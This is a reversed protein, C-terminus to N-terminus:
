RLTGLMEVLKEAAAEGSGRAFHSIFSEYCGFDYSAKDPVYSWGANACSFVMTNEFPSNAKIYEGLSNFIEFPTTVFALEGIRIANLEMKETQPRSLRALIAGAHYVSTIEGGLEKALDNATPRDTEQWKRYVLRAKDALHEDDHNVPQEFELTAIRVCDAELKRFRGMVGLAYEAVKNGFPECGLGHKYKEILSEGSVNGSAGTFYAFLMGTEEEMRKRLPGIFDPSVEKNKSGDPMRCPHAQWNMILIDTKGERAIKVLRFRPDAESVHCVRPSRGPHGFNAGAYTGDALIYHRIFNIGETKGTATYLQASVRDALAAVAARVMADMYFVKYEGMAPETSTTDPASHSHTACIMIRNTPVGTAQSIKERAELVWPRHSRVLDQTYLLVTEEGCTFAMCTTYLEDRISESFRTSTNGYGALPVSMPPTISERGFGVQLGAASEKM